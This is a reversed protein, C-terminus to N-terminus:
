TLYLGHEIIYKVVGDPTYKDCSIGNEVMARIQTASIDVPTVPMQIFKYCGGNAADLQEPHEVRNKALFEIVKKDISDSTLDVEVGPRVMMLLHAHDLIKQWDKWLHLERLIDSGVMFVLEQDSYIRALQALTDVTYSLGSRKVDLDCIAFQPTSAIAAKTMALRHDAAVISSKKLPHEGSPLFLVQQLGLEELVEYAPRLHGFHPPNFAGGLIGTKRKKPNKM